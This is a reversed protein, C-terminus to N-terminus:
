ELYNLLINLKQSAISMTELLTPYENAVYICGQMICTIELAFNNFFFDAQLIMDITSFKSVSM